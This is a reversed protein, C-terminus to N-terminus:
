PLDSNTYVSNNERFPSSPGTTYEGDGKDLGLAWQVALSVLWAQGRWAAVLVQDGHPPVRGIMQDHNEKPRWPTIRQSGIRAQMQVTGLRGNELNNPIELLDVAGLRNEIYGLNVFHIFRRRQPRHLCGEIPRIEPDVVDVNGSKLV